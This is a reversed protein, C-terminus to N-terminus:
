VACSCPYANFSVRSLSFIITRQVDKLGEYHALWVIEHGMSPMLLSQRWWMWGNIHPDFNELYHVDFRSPAGKTLSKSAHYIFGSLWCFWVTGMVCVGVDHGVFHRSGSIAHRCVEEAWWSMGHIANYAVKDLMYLHLVGGGSKGLVLSDKGIFCCFLDLM